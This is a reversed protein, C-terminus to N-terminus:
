GVRSITRGAEHFYENTLGKAAPHKIIAFSTGEGFGVYVTGTNMQVVEFDVGAIKRWWHQYWGHVGYFVVYKPSHEALRRKIHEARIPAYYDMYRERTQLQPLTSLEAYLWHRTSPSPLPLLELLCTEGDASGLHDRQYARVEETRAPDGQLALLLRILGGWTRQIRPREGFYRDIGVGRHHGALDQLEAKNSHNWATLRKVIEEKSNGGGEEMGVFWYRGAYNGYGYFTAMYAELLKDDIQEM